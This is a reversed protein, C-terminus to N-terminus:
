HRLEIAPCRDMIVTMGEAELRAASADNRVGLQMWVLKPKWPLALIEEAVGPIAESARFVDIMDVPVALDALSAVVTQGLIEKGAQGPNVPVIKYGKSLLFRMVGHSPRTENPSAGIVAITKIKALEDQTYGEPYNDHNM